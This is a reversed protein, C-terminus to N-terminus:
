DSLHYFTYGEENCKVHSLHMRKGDWVAETAPSYDVPIGLKEVVKSISIM